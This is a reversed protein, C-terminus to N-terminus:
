RYYKKTNFSPLCTMSQQWPLWNILPHQALFLPWLSSFHCKRLIKLRYQMKSSLNWFLLGFNGKCWIKAQDMSFCLFLSSKEREVQRSVYFHRNHRWLISHFIVDYFIRFNRFIEVSRMNSGLKVMMQSSIAWYWFFIIFPAVKIM